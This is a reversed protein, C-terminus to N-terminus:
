WFLILSDVTAPSSGSRLIHLELTRSGFLSFLLFLLFLSPLFPVVDNRTQMRIVENQRFSSPIWSVWGRNPKLAQVWGRTGVDSLSTTAIGERIRRWPPFSPTYAPLTPRFLALLIAPILSVLRRFPKWLDGDYFPSKNPLPHSLPRERGGGERKKKERAFGTRRDDTHTARFRTHCLRRRTLERSLVDSTVKSSIMKSDDRRHHLARCKGESKAAANEKIGKVRTEDGTM